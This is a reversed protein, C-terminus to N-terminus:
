SGSGGLYGHGLLSINRVRILFNTPLTVYISNECNTEGSTPIHTIFRMEITDATIELRQILCSRGLADDDHKATTLRQLEISGRETCLVISDCKTRGTSFPTFWRISGEWGLPSWSPFGPRRRLSSPEPHYWFLSIRVEPKPTYLFTSKEQVVAFPVGSVHHAPDAENWFLTRLAGSIANLADRDDSLIRKSYEGVHRLAQILGSSRTFADGHPVMDIICGLPLEDEFGRGGDASNWNIDENCLFVVQRDTFFLRRKSLYGEQFRWARRAWLSRMIDLTVALPLAVLYNDRLSTYHINRSTTRPRLGPLGYTPDGGASAIITLQASSYIDGM